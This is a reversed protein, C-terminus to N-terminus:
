SAPTVQGYTYPSLSAWFSWFGREPWGRSLRALVSMMCPWYTFCSLGNQLPPPPVAWAVTHPKQEQRWIRGKKGLGARIGGGGHLGRHNSCGCLPGQGSAWGLAQCQSTTKRPSHSRQQTKVGGGGAVLSTTGRTCPDAERGVLSPAGSPPSQKGRSQSGCFM